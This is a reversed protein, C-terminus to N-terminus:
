GHQCGYWLAVVRLSLQPQQPFHAVGQDVQDCRVGCYDLVRLVLFFFNLHM